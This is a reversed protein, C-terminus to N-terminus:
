KRFAVVLLGLIVISVIVIAVIIMMLYGNSELFSEKAPTTVVQAKAPVTTTTPPTTVVTVPAPTTTQTVTTGTSTTPKATSPTTDAGCDQIILTLFEEEVDKNANYYADVAIQYNGAKVSDDINLTYAKRRRTDEDDTVDGESLKFFENVQIGLEQNSVSLEVNEDKEGVNAVEVTLTPKRVCSVLTPNLTLESLYVQHTEKTVELSITGNFVNYNKAGDKDDCKIDVELDYKGDDAETPIEFNFSADEKKEADVDLNQDQNDKDCDDCLEELEVDIDCDADNDIKPDDTCLNDLTFDINLKTGPQVELDGTVKGGSVSLDEKGGGTVSADIDTFAVCVKETVTITFTETDTAGSTDAAKVQATFSGTASPTWSFQGATSLTMGTPGSVLTHTLTDGADADTAQVTATFSQGLVASTTSLSTIVPADNVGTVKVKFTAKEDSLAGTPDKVQVTCTPFTTAGDTNFEKDKLTVVLKQQGFTDITCDVKGSLSSSAVFELKGSHEPDQDKVTLPSLAVEKPDQGETLTLDQLTGSLTPKRNQITVENSSATKSSNSDKVTIDCNWKEGVKTDTGTVKESKGKADKAVSIGNDSTYANGDRKWLVDVTYSSEDGSVGFECVLKDDTTPKDPTLTVSQVIIIGAAAASVVLLSVLFLVLIKVQKLVM